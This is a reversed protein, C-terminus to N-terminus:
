GRLWFVSIKRGLLQFSGMGNQLNRSMASTLFIFFLYTPCTFSFPSGWREERKRKEEGKELLFPQAHRPPPPAPGPSPFAARPRSPHFPPLFSRARSATDTPLIFGAPLPGPVHHPGMNKPERGVGSRGGPPPSPPMPRHPRGRTGRGPPGRRGARKSGGGPGFVVGYGRAM